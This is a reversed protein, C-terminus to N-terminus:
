RWVVGAAFDAYPARVGTAIIGSVGPGDVRPRGFDNRSFINCSRCAGRSSKM